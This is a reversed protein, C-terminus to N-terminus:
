ESQQDVTSDEEIEPIVQSTTQLQINSPPLIRQSVATYILLGYGGCCCLTLLVPAALVAFTARKGSVRQGRSVMNIASVAWWVTGTIGGLCPVISVISAGGSYLIAQMTRNFTFSCGGTMLLIVHTTASWAVVYFLLSIFVLLVQIGIILFIEAIGPGGQLGGYGFLPIAFMFLVPFMTIVSTILFTTLLFSWAKTLPEHIPIRGM